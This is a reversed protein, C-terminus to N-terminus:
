HVKAEKMLSNKLLLRANKHTKHEQQTGRKFLTEIKIGENWQVIM